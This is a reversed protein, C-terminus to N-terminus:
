AEAPKRTGLLVQRWEVAEQAGKESLAYLYRGTAMAKVPDSVDYGPNGARDILGELRLKRRWAAVSGKAYEPMIARMEGFKYWAGNEMRACLVRDGPLALKQALEPRPKHFINPVTSAKAKAERKEKVRRKKTVHVRANAKREAARRREFLRALARDVARHQENTWEFKKVM